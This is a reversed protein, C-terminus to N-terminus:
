SAQPDTSPATHIHYANKRDCFFVASTPNSIANLLCEKLLNAPFFPTWLLFDKAARSQSTHQTLVPLLSLCLIRGLYVQAKRLYDLTNLVVFQTSSVDAHEVAM